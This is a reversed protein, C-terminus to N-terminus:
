FLWRQGSSSTPPRFDATNLEPLRTAYNLRRAFVRFTSEIQEALPGVGRMRRGFEADNWAGGRVDQIRRKIREAMEDMTAYQFGFREVNDPHDSYWQVMDSASSTTKAPFISPDSLVHELVFIEIHNNRNMLGKGIRLGEEQQEPTKILIAIRKM